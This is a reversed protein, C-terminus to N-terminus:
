AHLAELLAAFRAAQQPWGPLAAAATRAGEALRERLAADGLVQALAGQLAAVNGARVQLGAGSPLTHALAGGDTTVVPLGQAVAEAVVMGYGEYLSPLVFVDASAYHAPLATGPVEGHWHVRTGLPEALTRLGASTAPDRETSGVLHLEWPLHLLGALAQLLVAHGKRPTLTAVCLLRLPAGAQRLRRVQAVADTGPEVVAIRAAPVGMAAVDALTSRSTVVVQQALALAASEASRLEQREAETLGTELHLPHHVLALWRLRQAHPRVVAALCAFALGDAVVRTGDPLAAIHAAADDLDSEDPWPWAGTLVHPTVCWGAERLALGLRRDYTYGGTPTHWDGPLLFHCHRPASM